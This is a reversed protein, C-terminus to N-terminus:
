FKHSDEEEEEENIKGEKPSYEEGGFSFKVQGSPSPTDLHDHHQVGDDHHELVSDLRRTQCFFNSSRLFSYYQLGM